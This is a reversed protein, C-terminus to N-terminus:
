RLIETLNNQFREVMDTKETLPMEKLLKEIYAAWETSALITNQSKWIARFIPNGLWYKLTTMTQDFTLQDILGASHQVYADQSNSLLVRFIISLHFIEKESLDTQQNRAKLFVDLMQSDIVWMNMDSTRDIVGQSIQARQNKETQRVQLALYVLSVLVAVGSVLSGVSALDSLSM